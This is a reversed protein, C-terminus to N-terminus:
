EKILRKESILIFRGVKRFADQMGRQERERYWRRLTDPTFHPYRKVFEKIPLFEPQM